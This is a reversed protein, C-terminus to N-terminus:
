RHLVESGRNCRGSLGFVHHTPTHHAPLKTCVIQRLDQRLNQAHLEFKAQPSEKQDALSALCRHSPSNAFSVTCFEPDQTWRGEGHTTETDKSLLNSDLGAQDTLAPLTRPMRREHTVKSSRPEILCQFRAPKSTAMTFVCHGGDSQLHALAPILQTFLKPAHKSRGATTTIGAVAGM